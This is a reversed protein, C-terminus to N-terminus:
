VAAATRISDRIREFDPLCKLAAEVVRPDFQTGSHRRLEAIAEEMPLAKRYSRDSRMADYADVVSFLRAGMPIEEGRLGRPYGTGDYKEQHSLVIECANSLYASGKLVDYGIQAHTRMIVWEDDTLPGEKLLIRDPIAIKGIDHLLAGHGLADLADEDFEMEKGLALALERVNLSHRGTAQERADLLNVLAELTFEYSQKVETLAGAIERSQERVMDELRSQYDRNALLLRRYELARTLVTQLKASNVPKTIFDYAGLRLSEIANDATSHATLVIVVVSPDIARVQEMLDFGSKGHGLSLDTIVLDYASPQARFAEVTSAIDEKAIVDYQLTRLMLAMMERVPAEDDILLIRPDGTEAPAGDAAKPKVHELLPVARNSEHSWISVRNRGNQKSFYLAQDAQSVVAESTQDLREEGESSSLGVSISLSLDHTGHCFSHTSVADRLRECFGRLDDQSTNPFIIVLEDGGYRGVIDTARANQLILEALERLVQDGIQHGYTDNVAKFRDVDLMAISVRHQYRRSLQWVSELREDVGRQNYLGTLGDRIALQKMRRFTMLVTGLLNAAHYLFLMDTDTMADDSEAALCLLGRIEGEALIPVTYFLALPADDTDSVPLGEMQIRIEDPLDKGSIARYRRRVNAVFKDISPQGVPSQLFLMLAAEDDLSLIGVIEAHLFSISSSLGRLADILTESGTAPSGLQQFLGLANQIQQLSIDARNKLTRRKETALEMVRERFAAVDFPKTMVDTVGLKAIRAIAETQAYGTVIIVGIWPCIRKGESIFAVGDMGSMKLDVVAVDFDNSLLLQLGERGDSAAEVLCNAKELIQTTLRRVLPDDDLVLV